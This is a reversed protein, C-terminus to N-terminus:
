LDRGVEPVVQRRLDAASETRDLLWVVLTPRDLCSDFIEAAVQDTAAAFDYIPRNGDTCSPTRAPRRCSTRPAPRRARRCDARSQAPLVITRQPRNSKLAPGGRRERTRTDQPWDQDGHGALVSCCWDVLGAVLDNERGGRSRFRFRVARLGRNYVLTSARRLTRCDRWGKGGRCGSSSPTSRNFAGADTGVLSQGSPAGGVNTPLSVNVPM